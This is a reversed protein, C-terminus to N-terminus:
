SPIGRVTGSTRCRSSGESLRSRRRQQSRGAYGRRVYDPYEGDNKLVFGGWKNLYPVIGGEELIDNMISNFPEQQTICENKTLNRVLVNQNDSIIELWDGAEIRSTDAEILLIRNNFGNRFFSRSFSCAIVVPIGAAKVVVAAIEMASGCGFNKGAVLINGPVVPAACSPDLDEMLYQKLIAGDLTDRKRRSSIIYDTNVDDGVVRATGCFRM